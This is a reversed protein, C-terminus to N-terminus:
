KNNGEVFKVIEAGIKKGMELGTNNDIDFHIGGYFRSMACEKALLEFYDKDAPFIYSLVVAASAATTAHGSPYGPFNPTRILPTFSPDQLQPRTAWYTFKADWAAVQADYLSIYLLAYVRAAAVPDKDLDYEFIKKNVIDFYLKSMANAWFFATKDTDFSHKVSKLKEMEAIAFNEAPPDPRFQSGSTLVWTKWKGMTPYAPNEGHWLGEAKPIISDWKVDSRDHKAYEVFQTAIFKGLESGATIDSKYNIGSNLAATNAENLKQRIEISDGPFFYTLMGAYISATVSYESPFSYSPIDDILPQLLSIYEFPRKIKLSDKYHWTVLMGDYAACNLLALFRNSEILRKNKEILAIAIENWRYSPSGASWYKIKGIEDGTLQESRLKIAAAESALTTEQPATLVPLSGYSILWTNRNAKTSSSQAVVFHASLVLFFYIPIRM